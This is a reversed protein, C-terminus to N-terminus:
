LLVVPKLGSMAGRARGQSPIDYRSRRAPDGWAARAMWAAAQPRRTPRGGRASTRAARRWRAATWVQWSPARAARTTTAMQAVQLAMCTSWRRRNRIFYFPRPTDHGLHCAPSRRQISDACLGFITHAATRARSAARRRPATAGSEFALSGGPAPRRSDRHPAPAAASSSRSGAAHGGTTYMSTSAAADYMVALAPLRDVPSTEVADGAPGPVANAADAVTVSIRSSKSCIQLLNARYKATIALLHTIHGSKCLGWTSAVTSGIRTVAPFQYWVSLM